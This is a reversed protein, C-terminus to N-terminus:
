VYGFEREYNKVWRTQSEVYLFTLGDFHVVLRREDEVKKNGKHENLKDSNNDWDIGDIKTAINILNCSAM